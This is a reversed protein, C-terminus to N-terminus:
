EFWRTDLPPIPNAERDLDFHLFDTAIQKMEDFGKQDIPSVGHALISANRKETATRWRSKNELQIDAAIIQAEAHRLAALARFLQELSLKIEGHADPACFPLQKLEPPIKDLDKNKCRGHVFLNNTAEALWIQGQMEMARYLRAAADEFRGQKATRIANDLLERLFTNGAHDAACARCVENASIAFAIIGHDDRGDYLPPLQSHLRNLLNHATKFDLRHRAAMASALTAIARFTLKRPVRKAVQELVLAAPEFQCDHWLDRAREIERIALETWPNPQQIPKETGSVVRGMGGTERQEGAVYNFHQFLETAALVLAASMTKTGCTYDVLVSEPSVGTEALIDPIRRRLERYCPGLEEFKEVEIFRAQPRWDLTQQIHDATARSRTSCFYWVHPPRHHELVKLIPDPTGGVSVLAANFSGPPASNHTQM